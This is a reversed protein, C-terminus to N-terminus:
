KRLGLLFGISDPGPKIPEVHTVEWTLSGDVVRTGQDPEWTLDKAAIFAVTDQAEIAVLAASGGSSAMMDALMSKDFVAFAAIDQNVQQKGLWPKGADVAAAAPDNRRLTVARGFKVALDKAATRLGDYVGM